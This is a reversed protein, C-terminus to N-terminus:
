AVVEVIPRMLVRIWKVVQLRTAIWGVPVVLVSALSVFRGWVVNFVVGVVTIWMLSFMKNVTMAMTMAIPEVSLVCVLVVTKMVCRPAQVRDVAHMVIEQVLSVFVLVMKAFMIREALGVVAVM